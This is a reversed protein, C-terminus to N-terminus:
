SAVRTSGPVKTVPSTAEVKQAASKAAVGEMDIRGSLRAGDAIAIRPARIDGTVSGSPAIEVKDAGSINGRVDGAVVVIKGMIEADIRGNPGITLVHEKVSIKGEFQGDITLDEQAHLTGKIKVSQGINVNSTGRNAERKPAPPPATRSMEPQRQAQPAPAPESESKQRMWAM